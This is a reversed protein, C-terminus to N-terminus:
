GMLFIRKFEEYEVQGNGDTDARDVMEHLQEDTLREGLKHMLVGLEAVNISGKNDADLLRFAERMERELHEPTRDSTQGGTSSMKRIEGRFSKWTSGARDARRTNFKEIDILVDGNVTATFISGLLAQAARRGPPFVQPLTGPSPAEVVSGENLSREVYCLCVVQSLEFWEDKLSVWEDYCKKYLEGVKEQPMLETVKPDVLNTVVMHGASYMGKIECGLGGLGLRVQQFRSLTYSGDENQKFKKRESAAAEKGRCTPVKLLATEFEAEPMTINQAPDEQLQFTVCGDPNIKLTQIKARIPPNLADLYAKVRALMGVRNMVAQNYQEPSKKDLIVSGVSMHAVTQPKCADPLYEGHMQQIREIVESYRKGFDDNLNPLAVASIGLNMELHSLHDASDFKFPSRKSAAIDMMLSENEHCKTWQALTDTVVQDRPDIEDVDVHKETNSEPKNVDDQKEIDYEVQARVAASSM